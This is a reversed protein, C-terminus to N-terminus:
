MCLVDGYRQPLEAGKRYRVLAQELLRTQFATNEVFPLKRVPVRIEAMSSTQGPQM